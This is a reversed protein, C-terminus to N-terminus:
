SFSDIDVKLKNMRKNYKTTIAELKTRGRYLSPILEGNYLDTQGRLFVNCKQNNMYKGFGIFQTLDHVTEIDYVKVKEGCALQIEEFSIDSPTKNEFNQIKYLM